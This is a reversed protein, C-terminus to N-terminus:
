PIRNLDVYMKTHRYIQEIVIHMNKYVYHAGELILSHNSAIYPIM